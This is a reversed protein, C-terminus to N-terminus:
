FNDRQEPIESGWPPEGTPFLGRRKRNQITPSDLLLSESIIWSREQGPHSPQPRLGMADRSGQDAWQACM